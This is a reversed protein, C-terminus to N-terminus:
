RAICLVEGGVNKRLADKLEVVGYPTDLITIQGVTSPKLLSGVKQGIAVAKLDEATAFVKRSPKSVIKLESLVPDGFRYKLDLWLKRRAINDPTYPVEEAPKGNQANTVPYPGQEDGKMM